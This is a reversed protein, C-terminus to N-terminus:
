AGLTPLHSEREEVYISSRGKDKTSICATIKRLEEVILDLNKSIEKLEIEEM